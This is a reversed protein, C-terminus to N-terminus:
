LLIGTNGDWNVTGHTRFSHGSRFHSAEICKKIKKWHNKKTIGSHNEVDRSSEESVWAQRSEEDPTRYIAM